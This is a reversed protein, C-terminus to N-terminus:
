SHTQRLARGRLVVGPICHFLGCISSCTLSRLVSRCARERDKIATGALTNSFFYSMVKFMPLVALWRMAEASRAYGSGLIYPVIGASLLLVSGIIVAYGLSWLLLPKAYKFCPAIGKAGARFFSSYSAQLLSLVPVFSIDVLRYAAGYIGTAELSGLRALMTKDIDNYITQASQGTSFYLGERFEATWRIGTLKPSGLKSWVLLM